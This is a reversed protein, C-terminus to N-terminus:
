KLLHRYDSLPDSGGSGKQISFSSKGVEKGSADRSVEDVSVRDGSQRLTIQRDREYAPPFQNGRGVLSQLCLRTASYRAQDEASFHDRIQQGFADAKLYREQEEPTLISGVQQSLAAALANGEQAFSPIRVTTVEGEVTVVARSAELSRASQRASECIAALEARRAPDLGLFTAIDEPGTFMGRAWRKTKQEESEERRPVGKEKFERDLDAKVVLLEERRAKLDVLREELKTIRARLAPLDAEEGRPPAGDLGRPEQARGHAAPAAPDGAAPRRAILTVAGLLSAVAAVAVVILLTRSPM